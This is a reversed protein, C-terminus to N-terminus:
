NDDYGFIRLLYLFINIFDLYLQLACFAAIGTNEQNQFQFYYKRIMQNDYATLGTFVVVGIIALVLDLGTSHFVFANLVMTIILGWVLIIGIRGFISLDKKIFMGVAAAGAFTVMATVFAQVVTAQSYVMLTVTLTVGTLLSYVLFGAMTLAPNKSAKRSMVVVLILQIIWLGWFGLPFRKIFSLVENQFVNAGLYATLASLGLGAAFIAYVKAYFKNLAGINVGTAQFRNPSQNNMNDLKM